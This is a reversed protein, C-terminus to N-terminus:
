QSSQSDNNKSDQSNPTKNNWPSNAGGLAPSSGFSDEDELGGGGNATDFQGNELRTILREDEDGFEGGMLTPEGVMMVDQTSLPFNNAPSKKKSNNNNNNGGGASMNSGGSMKRKRRKNPAQRAPEAPPAVMRQWKQFLCTKLCDRPSLSYTKHRSMLEQMPELIVCLRLYNLTSNSLGCRTINKALQDLMQPDQVQTFMPKGNQTVMTCQDCDLSVFNSHFSEKPHKLTYFLETAGRYRKPGDELCFTITLMADDEFFETTFADWWLNDCDETWNQLRKNLEFIRYDTQNGYPTPRGMGPELYSPPYMPTPGVDRDLMTGPHFPPFASGNPGPEKPSYLKFSKSSCSCFENIM